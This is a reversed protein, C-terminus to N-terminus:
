FTCHWLMKPIYYNQLLQTIFAEVEKIRLRQAERNHDKIYVNINATLVILKTGGRPTKLM